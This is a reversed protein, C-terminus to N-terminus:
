ANENESDDPKEGSSDSEDSAEGEDKSSALNKPLWRVLRYKVPGFRKELDQEVLVEVSTLSSIKTRELSVSYVWPTTDDVELSERSRESLETKSSIMEDMLTIALMQARTEAESNSASRGAYGILEGIMAVAAALIALALIVELLTFASGSPRGEGTKRGRQIAFSRPTRASPEAAHRNKATLAM